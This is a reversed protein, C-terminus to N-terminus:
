HGSERVRANGTILNTLFMLNLRIKDNSKLRRVDTYNDINVPLFLIAASSFVIWTLNRSKSYTWKVAGVSGTSLDKIGTILGPPFMETLGILREM